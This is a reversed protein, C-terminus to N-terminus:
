IKFRQIKTMSFYDILCGQMFNCCAKIASFSCVLTPNEIRENFYVFQNGSDNVANDVDECCMKLKLILIVNVRICHISFSCTYKPKFSQDM